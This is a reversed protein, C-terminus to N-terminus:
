SVFLYVIFLLVPSSSLFLGLYGPNVRPIELEYKAAFLIYLSSFLFGPLATFISFPLYYPVLLATIIGFSLGIWGLAPTYKQM